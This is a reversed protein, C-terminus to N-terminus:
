YFRIPNLAVSGARFPRGKWFGFHLHVGTTWGTNGMGGIAQGKEVHDGVHVYRRSMHAYETFYGNHHDIIIFNGNMNYGGVYGGPKGESVIVTGAQAAFINSGYGCGAVDMGKHFYQGRWGFGSSISSCSAPWGWDGKTVVPYGFGEDYKKGGKIIIEPIAEKVIETDLPDIKSIAGNIKTIRQTVKDIGNIGKQKVQQYGYFKNNDYKVETTYNKKVNEVVYDEEIVNVQPDVPAIIVKQGPAILSNEDTYDPNVILFEETSMKNNFAIDAITDGDKVSYEQQKDTNGFLLLQTLEKEDQYIKKDVPINQKKVTIKNQLTINEIIKGVGDIKSKKNSAFNDYEKPPIFAKATEEIAKDFIKEDIVYITHDKGEKITHETKTVVGKISIKYGRITFPSLDKIKTYIKDVSTIKKNYTIERVIQLDKPPYVKKVGYKDKIEEQDKDIFEELEKKSDIIGLSKGKLYVRYVIKPYNSMLKFGTGSIFMVLLLIVIAIKNKKNM